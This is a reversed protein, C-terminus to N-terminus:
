LVSTLFVPPPGFGTAGASFHLVLEANVWVTEIAIVYTQSVMILKIIKIQYHISYLNQKISM